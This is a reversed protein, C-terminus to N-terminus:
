IESDPYTVGSQKGYVNLFGEFKKTVCNERLLGRYKSELFFMIYKKRSFLVQDSFLAQSSKLVSWYYAKRVKNVYEIHM